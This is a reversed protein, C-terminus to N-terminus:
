QEAPVLARAADDRSAYITFLDSTSRSRASAAPSPRTQELRQV